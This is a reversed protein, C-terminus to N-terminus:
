PSPRPLTVRVTTGDGPQSQVEIRGGLREARERMSTLGLGGSGGSVRLPAGQTPDFGQGDDAITVRWHTATPELSVRVQKARAHKAVNNLAEQVVRYITEEYDPPQPVYAEAQLEISLNERVAVREIQKHLAPLLGERIASEHRLEALLARMEGLAQQSLDVVRGIRREGETPDRRYAPAIAQAILTISFILQTVSDHLDRALRQREELVAAVQARAYLAANELAIALQDVVILLGTVDAETFPRAGAADLVGWLKDGLLIPMALEAVIDAGPVAIYRPDATVDNVLEPARQRAAVGLLGHTVSQRYGPTELSLWRSARARQVLWAPDAPDLLFISVHDYGLYKHVAQATTALLEAPDLHATILQSVRAILALRATREKEREFRRVSELAGAIQNASSQFLRLESETWLHPESHSLILNGIRQRGAILPILAIAPRGSAEQERRLTEPVRPDAHVDAIAVTQGNDLLPNLADDSTPVSVDAAQVGVGPEFYYAVHFNLPQGASDFDHFLAITGRYVSHGVIEELAARLVEDATQALSLRQSLNHLISLQQLTAQTDAFLRANHIAVALQDALAELIQVDEQSFAGTQQDEVDLVGIIDSGSRLPVSLESGPDWGGPARVYDPDLTVDNALQTQGTRAARGILGRQISLRDGIPLLDRLNSSIAAVVLTEGAPDLLAVNALHYGMVDQVAQVVVELLEQQDLNATAQRAVEFLAQLRRADRDDV